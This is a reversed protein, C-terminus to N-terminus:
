KESKEEKQESNEPESEEEKTEESQSQTEKNEEKNEEEKNEEEQVEKEEEEEDKEIKKVIQSTNKAIIDGSETKIKLEDEKVETIDGELAVEKRASGDDDDPIKKWDEITKDKRLYVVRDGVEYTATEKIKNKSMYEELDSESIQNLKQTYLPILDSKVWNLFALKKKEAVVKYKQRLVVGEPGYLINSEQGEPRLDRGGCAILKKSLTPLYKSGSNSRFCQFPVNKLEEPINKLTEETRYLFEKNFDDTEVPNLLCKIPPVKMEDAVEKRVRTIIYKVLKFPIPNNIYKKSFEDEILNTAGKGSLHHPKGVGVRKGRDENYLELVNWKSFFEDTEYSLLSGTKTLFELGQIMWLVDEVLNEPQQTWLRNKTDDTLKLSEIEQITIQFIQPILKKVWDLIESKSPKDPLNMNKQVIKRRQMRLNPGQASSPKRGILELQGIEFPPENSKFSTQEGNKQGPDVKTEEAENLRKIQRFNNYEKIYKM